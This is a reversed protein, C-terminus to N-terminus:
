NEPWSAWISCHGAKDSKRVRQIVGSYGANMLARPSFHLRGNRLTRSAKGFHAQSLGHGAEHLAVTEVDYTAGNAWGFNDNYYIERFAADYRGNNDIDTPGDADIWIYTFTVGLVDDGAGPGLTAEFFAGPLFGAHTIDAAIGPFGGFGNLYQELGLDLQIPGWEELPITSCRVADWTDMASRIAADTDGQSLGSSTVGDIADVAYTIGDAGWARREDGPVFHEPLRKNGVNGFFITRGLEDGEGSTLYEAKYLVYDAGEGALKLNVKAAAAAVPAVPALADDAVREPATATDSCAAAAFILAATVARRACTFNRMWKRRSFLTPLTVIGRGVQQTLAETVSTVREKRAL